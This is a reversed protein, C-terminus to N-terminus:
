LTNCNIIDEAVDVSTAPKTSLTPAILSSNIIKLFVKGAPQPDGSSKYLTQIQGNSELHRIVCDYFSVNCTAAINGYKFLIYKREGEFEIMCNKFVVDVKVNNNQGNVHVLSLTNGTYCYHIRCNEFIVQHYDLFTTYPLGEIRFLAESESLLFQCNIYRAAQVKSTFVCNVFEGTSQRWFTWASNTIGLNNVASLNYDSGTSGGNYYDVYHSQLWTDYDETTSDSYYASYLVMKNYATRREEATVDAFAYNACADVNDFSNDRYQKVNDAHIFYRRSSDGLSTAHVEGNSLYAHLGRVPYFNYIKTRDTEEPPVDSSNDELVSIAPGEAPSQKIYFNNIKLNVHGNNVYIAHFLKNTVATEIFINDILLSHNLRGGCLFFGVQKAITNKIIINERAIKPDLSDAMASTTTLDICNTFGYFRNNLIQVNKVNRYISLLVVHSDKFPPHQFKGKSNVPGRFTGEKDRKTEFSFGDIVVNSSNTNVYFVIRQTEASDILIKAGKGYVITNSPIKISPRESQTAPDTMNIRYTKGAAFLINKNVIQAYYFASSIATYDDTVGDAAAGYQEPTLYNDIIM